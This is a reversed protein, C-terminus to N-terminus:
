ESLEVRVLPKIVGVTRTVPKGDGGTWELNLSGKSEMGFHAPEGPRALRAGLSRAGQWATM